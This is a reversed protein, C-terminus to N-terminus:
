KQQKEQRKEHLACFAARVEETSQLLPISYEEGTISRYVTVRVDSCSEYVERCLLENLYATEIIDFGM